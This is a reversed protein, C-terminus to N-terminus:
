EQVGIRLGREKMMGASDPIECNKGLCSELGAEIGPSKNASEPAVPMTSKPDQDGQEFQKEM